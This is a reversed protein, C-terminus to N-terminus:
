VFFYKFLGWDSIWVVFCFFLFIMILGLFLLKLFYVFVVKIVGFMVLNYVIILLCFLLCDSIVFVWDNFVENDKFFRSSVCELFLMVSNLVLLFLNWKGVLVFFIYLMVLVFLVIIDVRVIVSVFWNGM